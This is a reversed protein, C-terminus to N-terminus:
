AKPSKKSRKQGTRTRKILANVEKLTLKDMGDKSAQNRISLPTMQARLCSVEFLTDRINEDDVSIM